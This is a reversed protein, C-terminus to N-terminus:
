AKQLSPKSILIMTQKKAFSELIEMEIKVHSDETTSHFKKFGHQNPSLLIFIQVYWNLTNYIMKEETKSLNCLVSIPRYGSPKYRDQEKKPIPTISANKWLTLIIGSLWVNNFLELLLNKDKISFNQLLLFPIKDPGYSNSKKDELSVNLKSM